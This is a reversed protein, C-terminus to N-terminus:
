DEDYGMDPDNPDIDEPEPSDPDIDMPDEDVTDDGVDKAKKNERTQKRTEKRKKAWRGEWKKFEEADAKRSKFYFADDIEEFADQLDDLIDSFNEKRQGSLTRMIQTAQADSILEDNKAKKVMNIARQVDPEAAPNDGGLRRILRQEWRRMPETYTYKGMVSRLGLLDGKNAAIDGLFEKVQGVDNMEGAADLIGRKGRTGIALRLDDGRSKVYNFLYQQGEPTTAGSKSLAQAVEDIDADSVAAAKQSISRTAGSKVVALAEEYEKQIAERVRNYRQYKQFDVPDLDEPDLGRLINKEIMEDLADLRAASNHLTHAARNVTGDADGKLFGATAEDYAQAGASGSRNRVAERGFRAQDGTIEGSRRGYVAEKGGTTFASRGKNVTPIEKHIDDWIQKDMKAARSGSAATDFGQDIAARRRLAEEAWEKMKETKTWQQRGLFAGGIGGAVAGIAAPSLLGGELGRAPDYVDGTPDNYDIAGSSAGALGGATAMKLLSAGKSANASAGFIRAEINAAKALFRGATSTAKAGAGVAGAVPILFSALTGGIEGQQLEDLLYPKEAPNVGLFDPLGGERGGLYKFGASPLGFLLSDLFGAGRALWEEGATGQRPDITGASGASGIPRSFEQLFRQSLDNKVSPSVKLRGQLYAAEYELLQRRYAQQQDMMEASYHTLDQPALTQMM